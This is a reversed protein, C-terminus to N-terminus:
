DGSDEEVLHAEADLNMMGLSSATSTADATTGAVPKSSDNKM